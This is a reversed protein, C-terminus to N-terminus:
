TLMRFSLWAATGIAIAVSYPLKAHWRRRLGPDSARPAPQVPLQASLPGSMLWVVAMAAGAIFTCLVVVLADVPGVFAGVMAMLKADGAGAAGLLYFPLLAALGVGLGQSAKLFGIGGPLAAAFGGGAPFVTHMLIALAIGTYVVGNPIRYERVDWWVAAGLLVALAGLGIAPMVRVDDFFM